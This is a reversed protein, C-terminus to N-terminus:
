PIPRGFTPDLLDTRQGYPRNKIASKPSITRALGLEVRRTGRRPSNTVGGTSHTM